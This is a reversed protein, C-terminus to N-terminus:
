YLIRYYYTTCIDLKWCRALRTQAWFRLMIFDPLSGPFILATFYIPSSFFFRLLFGLWAVEMNNDLIIHWHRHFWWSDFRVQTVKNAANLNNIVNYIHYLKIIIENNNCQPDDVVSILNEAKLLVNGSVQHLVSEKWRRSFINDPDMHCALGCNTLYDGLTSSVRQELGNFM